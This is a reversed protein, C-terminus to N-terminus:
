VRDPSLIIFDYCVDSNSDFSGAFTALRQVSVGCVEGWDKM